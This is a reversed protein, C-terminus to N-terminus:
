VTMMRLLVKRRARIVRCGAKALRDISFAEVTLSAVATGFVMAQRLTAFDTKGTAALYGLLAGAFRTGAGTPGGPGTLPFAPLTFHGETHFLM